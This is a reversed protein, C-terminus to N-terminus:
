PAPPAGGPRQRLYGLMADVTRFHELVVDGPDIAVDLRREIWDVIMVVGLSDVLGTLLLDTDSAVPEESVEESVFAVLEDAFAPDIGDPVASESSSV